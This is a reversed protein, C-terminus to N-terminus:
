ESEKKSKYRALLDAAKCRVAFVVVDRQGSTIPKVCHFMKSPIITIEGESSKGRNVASDPEYGDMKKWGITWFEGGKYKDGGEDKDGLQIVLAGLFTFDEKRDIHPEFKGGLTYKIFSIPELTVPLGFVQSIASTMAPSTIISGAREQAEPHYILRLRSRGSTKEAKTFDASAFIRKLEKINETSLPSKKAPIRAFGGGERTIGIAAKKLEDEVESRLQYTSIRKEQQSTHM